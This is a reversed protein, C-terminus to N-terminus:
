YRYKDILDITRSWWRHMAARAGPRAYWGDFGGDSVRRTPIRPLEVGSNLAWTLFASTEAIM